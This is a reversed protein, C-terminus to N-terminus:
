HLFTAQQSKKKKLALEATEAAFNISAVVDPLGLIQAEEALQRMCLFLGTLKTEIPEAPIKKMTKM